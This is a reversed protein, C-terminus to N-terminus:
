FTVVGMSYADVTTPSTVVIHYTIQQNQAITVTGSMTMGTGGAVTISEAADAINRHTFSITTGYLSGIEAIIDAASPYTVTVAGGSPDHQLFGGLVVNATLTQDGAVAVLTPKTKTTTFWQVPNLGSETVGSYETAYGFSSLTSSPM